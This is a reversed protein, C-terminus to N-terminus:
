FIEIGAIKPPQEFETVFQPKEPQSLKAKISRTIRRTPPYKRPSTGDPPTVPAPIKSVM